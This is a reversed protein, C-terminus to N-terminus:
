TAAPLLELTCADQSQNKIHKSKLARLIPRYGAYSDCRLGAAAQLLACESHRVTSYPLIDSEVYAVIKSGLCTHMSTIYTFLAVIM